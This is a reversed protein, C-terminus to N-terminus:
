EVWSYSSPLECSCLHEQCYSVEFTDEEAIKGYGEGLLGRLRGREKDAFTEGRRWRLREHYDGLARALLKRLEAGSLTEGELQQFYPAVITSHFALHLTEATDVNKIDAEFRVM